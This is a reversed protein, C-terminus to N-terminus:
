INDAVDIGAKIQIALQENTKTNRFSGLYCWVGECSEKDTFNSTPMRNHRHLIGNIKLPPMLCNVEHRNNQM